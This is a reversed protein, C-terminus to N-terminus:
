IDMTLVGDTCRKSITLVNINIRKTIYNRKMLSARNYPLSLYETLIIIATTTTTTQKWRWRKGSRHFWKFDPPEYFNACLRFHLCIYRGQPWQNLLRRLCCCCFFLFLWVCLPLISQKHTQTEDENKKRSRLDKLICLFFNYFIYDNKTCKKMQAKAIGVASQVSSM